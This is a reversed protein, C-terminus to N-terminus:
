SVNGKTTSSDHAPIPARRRTLLQDYGAVSPLPRSDPPLGAIVAAPDALRRQTLSTVREISDITPTLSGARMRTDAQKRAEVAVVDASIAGVTLASTLGAIVDAHCM